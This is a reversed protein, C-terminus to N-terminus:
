GRIRLVASEVQHWAMDRAIEPQRLTLPPLVYASLIGRQCSVRSEAVSQFHRMSSFHPHPAM